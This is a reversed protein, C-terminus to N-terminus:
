QITMSWTILNIAAWSGPCLRPVPKVYLARAGGQRPWQKDTQGDTQEM